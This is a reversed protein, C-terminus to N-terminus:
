STRYWISVLAGNVASAPNGVGGRLQWTGSPIEAKVVSGDASSYRLNAGSVFQGQNPHYGGILKALIYTGVAGHLGPDAPAFASESQSRTYYRGDSLTKTYYRTDHDHDAPAFEQDLNNVRQDVTTALMTANAIAQQVNTAANKLVPTFTIAGAASTAFNTRSVPDTVRVVAGFADRVVCRVAEGSAYFVQPIRGGADMTLPNPLPTTGDPDAFIAVPTTTGSKHFAVEGQMPDGNHDLFPPTEPILQDAM